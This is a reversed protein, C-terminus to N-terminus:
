VIVAVILAVYSSLISVVNSNLEGPTRVPMNNARRGLMDYGPTQVQSEMLM